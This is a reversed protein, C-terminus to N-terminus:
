RKGRQQMQARFARLVEGKRSLIIEFCDRTSYTPSFGLEREAKVGSAVWPYRFFDLVGPPMAYLTLRSRWAAWSLAHAVRYPVAVVRKGQIRAAERTELVGRGVANYIGAARREVCLALLRALDDEHVFQMPVDRGDLLATVPQSLLTSAIYNAVTPGLVICPRVICVKLEKHQAAFDRLMEDMRRKDHAYNFAPQARTPREEDLPVPNDPLAGYATTSSTALLHPIEAHVVAELVNRTGGLDIDTMEKEDYLPDLIFAFHLLSAVQKGALRKGLRPDRVDLRHFELRDSELRPPRVDFGIVRAEPDAGLLWRTMRTGIYGSSGTIAYTTM